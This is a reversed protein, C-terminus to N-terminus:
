QTDIAIHCAECFFNFLVSEPVDLYGMQQGLHMGLALESEGKIEGAWRYM